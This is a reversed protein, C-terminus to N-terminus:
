WKYGVGSEFLTLKALTTHFCVSAASSLRRQKRAYSSPGILRDPRYGPLSPNAGSGVFEGRSWSPWWRRFPKRWRWNRHFRGPAFAFSHRPGWVRRCGRPGCVLRAQEVLSTNAGELGLASSTGIPMAATPGAAGIFLLTAAAAIKVSM